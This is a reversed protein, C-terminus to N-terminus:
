APPLIAPKQYQQEPVQPQMERMGMVDRMRAQYELPLYMTDIAQFLYMAKRFDKHAVSDLGSEFTRKAELIRQNFEEANISRLLRMAEERVGYAPNCLEEAMRAAAELKGAFLERQAYMLKERAQKRLQDKQPDGTPVDAAIPDIRFPDSNNPAVAVKSLPLSGMEVERLQGTAVNIRTFDLGFVVALDRAASLEAAAKRFRQPDNAVGAVVISQRM